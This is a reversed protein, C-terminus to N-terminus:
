ILHETGSCSGSGTEGLGMWMVEDHVYVSTPCRPGTRHFSLRSSATPREMKNKTSRHQKQRKTQIGCLMERIDININKGYKVDGVPKRVSIRYVNRM